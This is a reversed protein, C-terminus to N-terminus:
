IKTEFGRTNNFSKVTQKEQGRRLNQNEQIILNILHDLKQIKTNLSQIEQVLDQNKQSEFESLKTKNILQDSLGQIQQSM